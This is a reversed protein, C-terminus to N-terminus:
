SLRVRVRPCPQVIPLSSTTTTPHLGPATRPAQLPKYFTISYAGQRCLPPQVYEPLPLRLYPAVTGQVNRILACPLRLIASLHHPHVHPAAVRAPSCPVMVNIDVVHHAHMRMRPRACSPHSASPSPSPSVVLRGPGPFVRHLCLV